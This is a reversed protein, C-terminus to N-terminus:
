FQSLLESLKDVKINFRQEKEELNLERQTVEEIRDFIYEEKKSIEEERNKLEVEKSSLSSSKTSIESNIIAIEDGIQIRKEEIKELSKSASSLRINVDVLLEEQYTKEKTIRETDAKLGKFNKTAIVIETELNLLRSKTEEIASIQESNLKINESSNDPTPM